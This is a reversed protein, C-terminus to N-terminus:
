RALANKDIEAAAGRLWESCAAIEPGRPRGTKHAAPRGRESTCDVSGLAATLNEGEIEVSSRVKTSM